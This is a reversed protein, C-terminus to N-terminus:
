SRIGAERQLRHLDRRAAEIDEPIEKANDSRLLEALYNSAEIIQRPLDAQLDACGKGGGAPIERPGYTVTRREQTLGPM